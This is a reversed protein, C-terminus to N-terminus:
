KFIRFTIFKHALYNVMFMVLVVLVQALIYWIRLVEVFFSLLALDIVMAALAIMLFVSFQGAINRSRNQFTINKNFTYHIIWGILYAIAASFLYWVHLIDTFIYLLGITIVATFGGVMLYVIFQILSNKAILGDKGMLKRFINKLMKMTKDESHTKLAQDKKDKEAELPRSQWVEARASEEPEV